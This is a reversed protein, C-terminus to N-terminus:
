YVNCILTLIWSVSRYLKAMIGNKSHQNNINSNKFEVTQIVLM